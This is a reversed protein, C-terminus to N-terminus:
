EGIMENIRRRWEDDFIVEFKMPKRNVVLKMDYQDHNNALKTCLELLSKKYDTDENKLHLGKTEVAYVIQCDNKNKKDKKTFIFDPYIKMKKWGQLGYDKKVRNRYWFLLKDQSELYLAVDKEVHNFEDEAVYDMLYNEIEGGNKNLLQRPSVDINGIDKFRYNLKKNELAIFKIENKEIKEKFLKEALKDKQKSLSKRLEDIIYIYNNVVLDKKNNKKLETLVKYGIDYALWPNDVLDLIHRVLFSVDVDLGGNKIIGVKESKLEHDTMSVVMEVNTEDYKTLQLNCVDTLDVESWDIQGQIDRAYDVLRYKGDINIIFLPLLLSKTVKQYKERIKIEKSILDRTIEGGSEGANIFKTLDGLGEDKFGKEISRLLDMAKQQFCFVYSEDLDKIQTKKANPQRL